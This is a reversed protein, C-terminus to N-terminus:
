IEDPGLDDDRFLMRQVDADVVNQYTIDAAQQSVPKIASRAPPLFTQFVRRQRYEIWVQSGLRASPREHISIAYRESMEKERWAMMFFQYFNDGAVTITQNAVIGGYAEPMLGNSKDHGQVDPLPKPESAAATLCLFFCLAVVTQKGMRQEKASM